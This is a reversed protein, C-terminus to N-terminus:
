PHKPPVDIISYRYGESRSDVCRILKFVTTTMIGTPSLRMPQSRGADHMDHMISSNRISRKAGERTCVWVLSM